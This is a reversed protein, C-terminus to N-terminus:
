NGCKKMFSLIKLEYSNEDKLFGLKKIINFGESNINNFAKVSLINREEAIHLDKRILGDAIAEDNFKLYLVTIESKNNNKDNKECNANVEFIIYGYVENQSFAKILFRSEKLEVNAKKFVEAKNEKNEELLINLM